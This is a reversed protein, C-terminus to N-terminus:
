CRRRFRDAAPCTAFHSIRALGDPEGDFEFTCSIVQGRDTIVKERGKEVRKYPVLGEDCPEWKMRPPETKIWVIPAGCAKCTSAM